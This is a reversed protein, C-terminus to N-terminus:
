LRWMQMHFGAAYGIEVAEEAEKWTDFVGVIWDGPPKWGQVYVLLVDEETYLDSVRNNKKQKKM